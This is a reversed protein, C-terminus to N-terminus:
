ELWVVKLMLLLNASRAFFLSLGLSLDMAGGGRPVVKPALITSTVCVFCFFSELELELKFDFKVKLEFGDNKPSCSKAGLTTRYFIIALTM